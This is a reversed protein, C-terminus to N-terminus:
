LPVVQRAPAHAAVDLADAPGQTLTVEAIVEHNDAHPPIVFSSNGARGGHVRKKVTKPDAFVFGIYSQDDQEKGNPTYHMQFAIKSGAPVFMAVGPKNTNALRGPVYATLKIGRLEGDGGVRRGRPRASDPRSRSRPSSRSRARTGRRRSAPSAAIAGPPIANAIIHHVVARNGPRVEAAQIWKDETWGPDVVFNQYDVVGEAPVTFPKEMWVIQHPEPLRGATPGNAHPRCTPWIVRRAAMTSGPM